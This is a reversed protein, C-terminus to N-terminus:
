KEILVKDNYIINQILQNVLIGHSCLLIICINGSIHCSWLIIQHIDYFRIQQWILVNKELTTRLSESILHGSLRMHRWLGASSIQIFLKSLLCLYLCSSVRFMLPPAPLCAYLLCHLLNSSLLLAPLYSLTGMHLPPWLFLGSPSSLSLTVSPLQFQDYLWLNYLLFTCFYTVSYSDARSCGGVDCTTEKTQKALKNKKSNFM